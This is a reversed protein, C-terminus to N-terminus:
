SSNREHHRDKRFELLSEISYDSLPRIVPHHEIFDFQKQEDGGGRKDSSGLFIGPAHHKFEHGESDSALSTSSVLVLAPVILVAWLNTMTNDRLM